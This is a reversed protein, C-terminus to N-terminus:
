SEVAIQEFVEEALHYREFFRRLRATADDASIEHWGYSRLNLAYWTRWYHLRVEATMSQGATHLLMAAAEAEYDTPVRKSMRMTSTISRETM